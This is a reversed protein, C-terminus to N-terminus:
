VYLAPSGPREVLVDRTGCVAAGYPVFPLVLDAAARVRRVSLLPPLSSYFPVSADNSDVISLWNESCVSGLCLLGDYKLQFTVGADGCPSPASDPGDSTADARGAEPRTGGADQARGSGSGM